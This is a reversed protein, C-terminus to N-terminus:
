GQSTKKELDPCVARQCQLTSFRKEIAEYRATQTGNFEELRQRVAADRDEIQQFKKGMWWVGAVVVSGCALAAGLSVNTNADIMNGAAVGATSMIGVM